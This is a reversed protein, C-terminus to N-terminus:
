AKRVRSPLSKTAERVYDIFLEVAPTLSRNKLTILAIPAEPSPLDVPLIKIPCRDPLLRLSFKQFPVIYQGSTMLQVRLQQSITVVSPKPMPLQRARFAEELRAYNWTEPPPLIWPENVLEALDIRRRSAWRSQPGATLVMRDNLLVELNLDDEGATLPKALRAVTFDYKRDRLGSLQEALIAQEDLHVVVRPYKQTFREIAVPIITAAITMLSAMRIEGSSPDALSEITRIGQRLEDFVSLGCKMLVEGYTTSTVGQTSRDFLRVGLVAELEGIAKSVAPQTVHLLKAAKAMSGSKVVAFFVHLDHLRLRRGIRSEWDVATVM